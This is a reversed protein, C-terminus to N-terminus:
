VPIYSELDTVVADLPETHRLPPEQPNQQQGLVPHGCVFLVLLLVVVTMGHPWIGQQRRM